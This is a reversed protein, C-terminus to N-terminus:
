INRISHYYAFTVDACSVPVLQVADIVAEFFLANIGDTAPRGWRPNHLLMGDASHRAM